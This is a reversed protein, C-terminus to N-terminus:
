KGTSKKRLEKLEKTNLRHGKAQSELSLFKVPTRNKSKKKMKFLM